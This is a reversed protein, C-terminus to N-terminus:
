RAAKEGRAILDADAYQENGFDALLKQRFACHINDRSETFLGARRTMTMQREEPPTAGREPTMRPCEPAPPFGFGSGGEIMGIDDGDIVDALAFCAAEKYHFEDRTAGKAAENGFFVRRFM